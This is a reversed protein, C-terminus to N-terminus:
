KVKDTKLASLVEISDQCLKVNDTKVHQFTIQQFWLEGELIIM